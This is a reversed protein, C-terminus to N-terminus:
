QQTAVEIAQVDTLCSTQGYCRVHLTTNGDLDPLDVDVDHDLLLQMTSLLQCRHLATAGKYDRINGDVQPDLNLGTPKLLQEVLQHHGFFSSAHLLTSGNFVRSHLPKLLLKKLVSLRYTGRDSRPCRVLVVQTATTCPSSPKSTM